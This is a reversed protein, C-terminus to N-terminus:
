PSVETATAEVGDRRFDFQLIWASGAAHGDAMVPKFTWGRAAQMALRAFYQSPGASDFAAGSVAGDPGVTVRVKLRITGHITASASRSVDPLVREAVGASDGASTAVRAPAAPAAAERPLAASPKPAAAAVGASVEPRASPRVASSGGAHEPRTKVVPRAQMKAVPAVTVTRHSRSHVVAFVGLLVVAGAALAMVRRRAPGTGEEEKAVKSVPVSRVPELRAKNVDSLTCRQAPSWRLCEQAIRAYPQPVQEPVVPEVHFSRDWMPAEQTLAEVLTIGLSWVDAASSMVGTGAEPADYTDLPRFYKGPEGAIELSDGSIKLVNGVVLLNSPKLHGHVFGQTHLYFLADLMPVLMERVENTTLPREPIIESLVEEAYETVSYLVPTGDVECQGTHFLSMLHPHALGATAVWGALRAGAGASDAPVVKIAVRRSGPGMLETLFVGSWASGGLWELLRFRGDIVRGVWDSRIAAVTM